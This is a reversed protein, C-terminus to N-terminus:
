KDTTQGKANDDEGTQYKNAKNLDIYNLSVIHRDGNEIPNYGYMDRIENISFTGLPMMATALNNKTTVSAFLLKNATLLIESGNLIDNETFIKNTFENSLQVLIPELTLEYFSNFEDESACGKLVNESIGFNYSFYDLILKHQSTNITKPEIKIPTFDIKSDLIGIGDGGVTMYSKVFDDKYTDLDAKKLNGAYKLVGRLQTSGEVANIMGSDIARLVQFIPKLCNKQTTGFLENDNYHRRILILESYPIYVHMGRAAFYFKAFIENEFEVFEIQSYPVPYLGTIRGNVVRIYVFCNNTDFLISTLKYFFEYRNMYENPKHELLYKLRFYYRSNTTVKVTPTLKAIQRAICDICARYILNDYANDSYRICSPNWNNLLKVRSYERNDRTKNGFINAFFDKIM